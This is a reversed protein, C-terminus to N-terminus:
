CSIKLHGYIFTFVLLSTLKASLRCGFLLAVTKASSDQHDPLHRKLNHSIVSLSDVMVSRFSNCLDILLHVLVFGWLPIAFNTANACLFYFFCSFLGILILYNKIRSGFFSYRATMYGIIPNLCFVLMVANEIMNYTLLDTSYVEIYIFYIPLNHGVLFGECVSLLIM